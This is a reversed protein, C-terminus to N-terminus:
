GTRIGTGMRWVCGKVKARSSPGDARALLVESVKKKNTEFYLFSSLRLHSQAEM